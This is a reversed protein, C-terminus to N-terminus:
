WSPGGFGGRKITVALNYTISAHAQDKMSPPLPYSISGSPCTATITEPLTLSYDFTHTGKLETGERNKLRNVISPKKSPGEAKWLTQSVVSFGVSPHNHGNAVNEDWLLAHGQVQLHHVHRTLTRVCACHLHRVSVDVSLIHQPKELQIKVSGTIAATGLFLPLTKSSPALSTVRLVIVTKSDKQEFEHVTRERREQQEYAPLATRISANTGDEGLLDTQSYLFRLPPSTVTSTSMTQLLAGVNATRRHSRAHHLSINSTFCSGSSIPVRKGVSVDDCACGAVEPQNLCSGAYRVRICGTCVIDIVCTENRSM